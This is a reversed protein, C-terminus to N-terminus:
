TLGRTDQVDGSTRVIEFQDRIIVFLAAGARNATLAIVGAYVDMECGTTHAIVSESMLLARQNGRVARQLLAPRLLLRLQGLLTLLM